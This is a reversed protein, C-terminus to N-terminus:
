ETKGTISSITFYGLLSYAIEKVYVKSDKRM